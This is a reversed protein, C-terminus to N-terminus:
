KSARMIKWLVWPLRVLAMLLIFPALVVTGALGLAAATRSVPHEVGAAAESLDQGEEDYVNAGLTKALACLVVIVENSRVAPHDTWIEDPTVNMTLTHQSSPDTWTLLEGELSFEPHLEAARQLEPSTFPGSGDKRKISVVYSM